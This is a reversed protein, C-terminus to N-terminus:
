PPVRVGVQPPGDFLTLVVMTGLHVSNFHFGVAPPVGDGVFVVVSPPPTIGHCVIPGFTEGFGHGPALFSHLLLLARGGGRAVLLDEFVDGECAGPRQPPAWQFGSCLVLSGAAALGWNSVLVSAMINHYPFEAPPFAGLTPAKDEALDAQPVQPVGAAHTCNTFWASYVLGM